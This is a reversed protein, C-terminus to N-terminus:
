VNLDIARLSDPLVYVCNSLRTLARARFVSIFYGVYLSINLRMVFAALFLFLLFFAILSFSLLTQPTLTIGFNAARARAHAYLYLIIVKQPELLPAARKM